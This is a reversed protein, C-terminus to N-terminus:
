KFTPSWDNVNSVAIKVSCVDRVGDQSVIVRMKYQSRMEYDLSKELVLVGDRSVSFENNPLDDKNISFQPAPLPYFDNLPLTLVPQGPPLNELISVELEHELLQIPPRPRTANSRPLITLPTASSRDPNNYQTALILITMPLLTDAESPDGTLYLAGSKSNLQLFNYIPGDQNHFSYFIPSNLGLDQDVAKLDDPTLSM